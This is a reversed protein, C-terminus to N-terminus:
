KHMVRDYSSCELLIWLIYLFSTQHDPTATFYTVLPDSQTLNLAKRASICFIVVVQIGAIRVYRDQLSSCNKMSQKAEQVTCTVISLVTCSFQNSREPISCICTYFMFTLVFDLSPRTCIVWAVLSFQKVLLTFQLVSLLLRQQLSRLYLARLYCLSCM